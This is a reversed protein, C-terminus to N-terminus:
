LALGLTSLEAKLPASQTSRLLGGTGAGHGPQLETTFGPPGFRSGHRRHRDLSPASDGLPTSTSQAVSPGGRLWATAISQARQGDGLESYAESKAPEVLDAALAIVKAEYAVPDDPPPPEAGDLEAAMVAAEESERRQRDWARRAAPFDARAGDLYRAEVRGRAAEFAHLETVGGILLDRAQVLRALPTGAVPADPVNVAIAVQSALAVYILGKRDLFDQSGVNIGLDLQGRFMTEVLSRRVTKAIDVSPTGRSRITATEKPKAACGTWPFTM